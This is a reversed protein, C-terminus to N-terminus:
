GRYLLNLHEKVKAMNSLEMPKDSPLSHDVAVINKRMMRTHYLLIEPTNTEEILYQERTIKPLHDAISTVENAGFDLHGAGSRQYGRIRFDITVVDCTISTFLLPLSELPSIAGCTALDLDLRLSCLGTDLHLQPYTHVTLHSKDLHGLLTNTTLQNSYEPHAGDALLLAVSAGLPDYTESSLNLVKAGILGATEELLGVLFPKNYKENLYSVSAQLDGASNAALVQYANFGLSRTLNYPQESHSTVDV